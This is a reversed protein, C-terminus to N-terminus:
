VTHLPPARLPNHRILTLLTRGAVPVSRGPRETLPVYLEFGSKLFTKLDFHLAQVTQVKDISLENFAHCHAADDERDNHHTMEPKDGFHEFLFDFHHHHPVVAHLLFVLVAAGTLSLAPIKHKRDSM